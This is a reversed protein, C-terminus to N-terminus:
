GNEHNNGKSMTIRENLVSREYLIKGDDRYKILRYSPVIGHQVFFTAIRRGTKDFCAVDEYTRKEKAELLEGLAAGDDVRRAIAEACENCDSPLDQNKPRRKLTHFNYIM